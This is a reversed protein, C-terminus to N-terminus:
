EPNGLDKSANNDWMRIRATVKKGALALSILARLRSDGEKRGEVCRLRSFIVFRTM